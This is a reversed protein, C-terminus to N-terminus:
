MSFNQHGPFDFEEEVDAARGGVQGPRLHRV